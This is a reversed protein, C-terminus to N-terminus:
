RFYAVIAEAIADCLRDQERPNIMWSFDQINCMFSTEIIVSPTWSPRCVYFNAQNVLPRRTTDPNVTFLNKLLTEALPLSAENRYWVSLGKINLSDTTEAISNGHISVFIDPRAQMSMETRQLLTHFVDTERTAIVNAGLNILRSKLKQVVTLNLHKEALTTGMPGAAGFDTGGHGADLMVTIGDLPRNGAAAQKRKNLHLQVENKTHEVFYSEINANDKLTFVYYPVGNEIGSTMSKFLSSDLHLFLAPVERQLGFYVTLKRNEFSVQLAAPADSKWAITDRNLGSRYTGNSLANLFLNKEVARSVNEKEVWRGSGLKVWDGAVATVADKQGKALAWDSGGTASARGYTWALDSIVTAYYRSDRGILWVSGASAASYSRGQYEIVYSPKGLSAIIREDAAKPITYVASWTAATLGSATGSKKLSVTEGNYRATVNVAGAPAVCSLTIQDGASYYVDASPFADLVAPANLVRPPSAPAANSRTIIRTVNVQGNQSFVFRNEGRVLPVHVSFFGEDTRNAVVAGNMYLDTDPVCTGVLTYGSGTTSVNRSPQAVTLKDMRVLPAPAPTPTPLPIIPRDPPAVTDDPGQDPKEPFNNPPRNALYYNKVTQGVPGDLSKARFFISGQTGGRLDNLALQRNIEGSWRNENAAERYAAQGIYLDVGTGRCVDRWWDLVIKYDAIEFGIYWYIQPCIYDVWGEKVWRRTDAYASKYSEYGNTASGLPTSKENQWIATPSVGYRVNPDVAKVAEGIGKIVKNVNDRRWDDLQMGGGYRAFTQKDSFDTGPYFYDDLHIGDVKYNKVIEVAGNIIFQRCEPIGPNFYLAGRHEVVWSPNIRAPSTAALRSVDTIRETTHTVRFPNIWAHLELGNKHSQEIWYALPDFYVFTSGNYEIMGRGQAGVLYRSWPFMASRYFADSCPRVQLVIANLGIDVAMAIIEDAERRLGDATLDTASPYDLNLVTAVWVARFDKENAAARPVGGSAPIALIFISFILAVCIKKM